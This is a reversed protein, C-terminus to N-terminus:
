TVGNKLNRRKSFSSLSKDSAEQELITERFRLQAKLADLKEGKGKILDLKKDVESVEQYLGFYLIEKFNM